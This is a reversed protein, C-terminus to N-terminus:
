INLKKRALEIGSMDAKGQLADAEKIDLSTKQLVLQRREDLLRQLEEDNQLSGKLFEIPKERRCISCIFTNKNVVM